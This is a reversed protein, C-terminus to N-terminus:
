SLVALYSAEATKAATEAAEQLIVTWQSSEARTQHRRFLSMGYKLVAGQYEESVPNPLRDVDYFM